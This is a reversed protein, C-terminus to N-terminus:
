PIRQVQSDSPPPSVPKNSPPSLRLRDIPRDSLPNETMKPSSIQIDDELGAKDARERGWLFSFCGGMLFFLIGSRKKEPATAANLQALEQLLNPKSFNNGRRIDGGTERPSGSILDIERLRECLLELRRPSKLDAKTPIYHDKLNLELWLKFSKIVLWMLEWCNFIIHTYIYIYLSLSLSFSVLKGKANIYRLRSPRQGMATHYLELTPSDASHGQPIRSSRNFLEQLTPSKPTMTSTSGEDKEIELSGHMPGKDKNQKNVMKPSSIQMDPLKDELEAKDAQKRGWLFSFCGDKLSFLIGSRKKETVPAPAPAPAPAAAANLQALELLLNPKSFRNGRRIEGGTECPSGSILDIERLRECLLELRLRSSRQGMAIHYLELTPSDASHGQPIRLSSSSAEESNKTGQRTSRNFLEQLTPSKPPTTSTSGEDKEIEFSGRTQGKPPYILMAMMECSSILDRPLKQCPSKPVNHAVIPASQTVASDSGLPRQEKPSKRIENREALELKLKAIESKISAIKAKRCLEEIMEIEDVGSDTPKHIALSKQLDHCRSGSGVGRLRQQSLERPPASQATEHEPTGGQTGDFRFDAPKGTGLSRHLEPSRSGPGVGGPRQQLLDRPPTTEAAAHGSGLPAQGEQYMLLDPPPPNILLNDSLFQIPRPPSFSVYSRRPEPSKWIENREALELKLQAVKSEISAIKDKCHFEEIMETGDVTSDAPELYVLSRRLDLCTIRSGVCHLWQKSLDRPPASQAAGDETAQGQTEDFRFDAPIGTGLSRRLEPSRNGPGVGGSRQQSLDRPPATEAAAQDSGLPAKGETEDSRFDTPKRTGSSSHLEPSRSKPGMGGPRQQPLKTSPDFGSTAQQQHMDCNWNRRLEPSSSEPEVGSPQHQPLNISPDFRLPVKEQRKICKVMTLAYRCVNYDNPQLASKCELGELVQLEIEKISFANPRTSNCQLTWLTTAAAVGWKVTAKRSRSRQLSAICQLSSTQLDQGKM